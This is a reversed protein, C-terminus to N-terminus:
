SIVGMDRLVRNVTGLAADQANKTKLWRKDSRLDNEFDYLTRMVPKGSQDTFALAKRITPDKLSLGEPNVELLQAMTQRYPEAIDALTEGANIRDALHPFASASEKAIQAKFDDFTGRGAIITEIWRTARASSIGLGMQDAYARIEREMQGAQGLLRGDTHSVYQSLSRRIQNDDWGFMYATEAMKDLAGGPARAGLEVAVMGLRTRVQNVNAKFTAPDASKQIAANRWAEGNKQFWQTNRLEAQFREPTYTQAVAKDFLKKLEPNSNLVAMAFGYNAALVQQDIKPTAM